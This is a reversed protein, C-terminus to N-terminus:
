ETYVDRGSCWGHVREYMRTSCGDVRLWGSGSVSLGDVREDRWVLELM